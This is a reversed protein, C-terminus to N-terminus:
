GIANTCPKTGTNAYDQSKLSVKGKFSGVFSRYDTLGPNQARKKKPSNRVLRDPRLCYCIALQASLRRRSSLFARASRLTVFLSPFFCFFCILLFEGLWWLHRFHLGAKRNRGEKESESVTTGMVIVLDSIEKM